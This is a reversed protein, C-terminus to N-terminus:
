ALGGAPRDPDDPHRKMQEADEAKKAADLCQLNFELLCRWCQVDAIPADPTRWTCFCDTVEVYERALRVVHFTSEEVHTM